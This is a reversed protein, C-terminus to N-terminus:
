KISLQFFFSLCKKQTTHFAGTVLCETTVETGIKKKKKCNTQELHYNKFTNSRSSFLTKSICSANTIFLSHVAYYATLVFHKGSNSYFLILPKRIM